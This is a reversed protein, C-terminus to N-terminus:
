ANKEIEAVKESEKEVKKRVKDAEVKDIEL